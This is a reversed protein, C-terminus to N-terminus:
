QASIECISLPFIYTFLRKNLIGYWVSIKADLKKAEYEIAELMPTYNSFILSTRLLKIRGEPLPFVRLNPM